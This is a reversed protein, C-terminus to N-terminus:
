DLYFSVQWDKARREMMAVIIKIRAVSSVGDQLKVSFSYDALPYFEDNKGYTYKFKGILNEPVTGIIKVTAIIEAENEYVKFSANDFIKSNIKTATGSEKYITDAKISSDAFSLEAAHVDSISQNPAYLQWGDKISSKFSLEYIGRAIKKSTVAWNFAASDQASLFNNIASGLLLFGFIQLIKKM